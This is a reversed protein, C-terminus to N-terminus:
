KKASWYYDDVKLKTSYDAKDQGISVRLLITKHGNKLYFKTTM